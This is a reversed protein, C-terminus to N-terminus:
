KTDKTIGDQLKAVEKHSRYWYVGGTAICIVAIIALAIEGPGTKPLEPPTDTAPPTITECREDKPDETCICDLDDEDCEDDPTPTPTDPTDPTDSCTRTVYITSSDSVRGADHSAFIENKFATRSNCEAKAVADDNVKVKYTITATANKGYLGTNFGSQGILDKMKLGNPNAGNVLTTTGPVLTVGTPLKDHFTVNTLSVTGTNKFSVKYTLTDGPKADVTEYFNTGDKSVTKSITSNVQDARIDYEIYGSYESCGPLWGDLVNYGLYTGEKSFLDTSLITGNSKGQNHIVASGEVYKLVVDRASTTTLTAEDWVSTPNATTSTIVGSITVPKANNVAWSTLGTSVRVSNAIGKGSANLSSKANNHYFIQVTYVKGPEVVASDIFYGKDKERVRVFNREDGIANNNTISNFTAYDAPNEMTFTTREPGWASSSAYPVIAAIAFATLGAVTMRRKFKINKKPM